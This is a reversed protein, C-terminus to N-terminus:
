DSGMMEQWLAELRSAQRDPAHDLAQRRGAAGMRARLEPAAALEALAAIFGARDGRRVLRGTEGDRVTEALGGAAYAVVPRAFGGAELPVRGFPEDWLTPLVVVDCAAYLDALAEPALRGHLRIRGRAAAAIEALRPRSPGDGAVDIEAGPVRAAIEPWAELLHAQGKNPTLAGVLLMRFRGDAPRPGPAEAPSAIPILPLRVLRDAALLGELSAALHRSTAAVRAARRLMEQRFRLAREAALAAVRGRWDDAPADEFTQDFRASTFRHDRVLALLPVRSGELAVAALLIARANDAHVLRPRLRRVLARLEGAAASERATVHDMRLGGPPDEGSFRVALPGLAAGPARVGGAAAEAWFFPWKLRFPLRKLRDVRAQSLRHLPWAAPAPLALIEVGDLSRRAPAALAKDFTVVLVRDRLRPERLVLHLSLEAGGAVDPPYRDSVVLVDRPPLEGSAPM